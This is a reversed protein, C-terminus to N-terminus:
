KGPGQSVIAREVEASTATPPLKLTSAPNTLARRAASVGSVGGLAGVVSTAMAVFAQKWTLGQAVYQMVGSVLGLVVAVRPTWAAPIKSGVDSSDLLSTAGALLLMCALAVIVNTSPDGVPAAAQAYAAQDLLVFASGFALLSLVNLPKKM